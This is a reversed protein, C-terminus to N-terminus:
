DFKPPFTIFNGLCHTSQHAWWKRRGTRKTQPHLLPPPSPPARYQCFNQMHSRKSKIKLGMELHDCDTDLFTAKKPINRCRTNMRTPCSHLSGNPSHSWFHLHHQDKYSIFSHLSGNPSHSWFHLHHQDKYSMFSHLSGNPSHSWFHLHHQDKYSM